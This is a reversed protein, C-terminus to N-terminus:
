IGLFSVISNALEDDLEEPAGQQTVETFLGHSLLLPTYVSSAKKAQPSSSVDQQQTCLPIVIDTEINKLVDQDVYVLEIFDTVTQMTVFTPQEVKAKSIVNVIMQRTEILGSRYLCREQVLMPQIVDVVMVVIAPVQEQVILQHKIQM